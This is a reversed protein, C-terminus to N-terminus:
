NVGQTRLSRTLLELALRMEHEHASAVRASLSAGDSQVKECQGHSCQNRTSDLFYSKYDQRFHYDVGRLAFYTNAAARLTQIPISPFTIPFRQEGPSKQRARRM